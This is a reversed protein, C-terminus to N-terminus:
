KEKLSGVHGGAPVQDLFRACYSPSIAAILLLHSFLEDIPEKHQEPRFNEFHYRDPKWRLGPSGSNSVALVTAFSLLKNRQVFIFTKTSLSNQNFNSTVPFSDPLPPEPTPLMWQLKVCRNLKAWAAAQAFAPTV